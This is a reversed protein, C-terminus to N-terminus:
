DGIHFIAEPLEPVAEVEPLRVSIVMVGFETLIRMQYEIPILVGAVMEEGKVLYLFNLLGDSDYFEVRRILFSEADIWFITKQYRRTTDTTEGELIYVDYSLISDRAVTRFQWGKTWSLIGPGVDLYPIPRDVSVFGRKIVKEKLDPRYIVLVTDTFLLDSPSPSQFRLLLERGKLYFRGSLTEAKPYEIRVEIRGKLDTAIESRDKVGKLISDSPLILFLLLIM